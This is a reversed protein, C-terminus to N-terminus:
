ENYKCSLLLLIQEFSTNRFQDLFIFEKLFDERKDEDVGRANKISYKIKNNWSEVHQTHVGTVPDVFNYKHCVTSHEYKEQLAKYVKAEDTHIISGQRVVLEIIPLITGATRDPIMTAFGTAPKTSTDVICLCWAPRIPGRGRHSKVNHNLKTEDIQVICHPGGLKVPNRLYYDNIKVIFYKRLRIYVPASIQVSKRIEVFTLNRSWM